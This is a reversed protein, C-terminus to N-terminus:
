PRQNGASPRDRIEDGTPSPKLMPGHRQVLTAFAQQDVQDAFRRLLERDSAKQIAESIGPSRIFELVGHPSKVAM